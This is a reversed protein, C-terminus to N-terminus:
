QGELALGLWTVSEYRDELDLATAQEVIDSLGKSVLPNQARPSSKTLPKPDQGTLLFYMTAGLAYIDSQTETEQRFQEPPMYAHKGPCLDFSQRDSHSDTRNSAANIALSFDILKIDKVGDYIINDPTLDRHILAPTQNHLYGVVQCLQATIARVQREPLRGKERVLQRLSQGKVHELMLYVRRDEAFFDLLKVIHPHDLSGLLRAELEFDRASQILAGSTQCDSLIFEKLVFDHSEDHNKRALYATAQGGRGIIKIIEISGDRLFDGPQLDERKNRTGAAGITKETLLDFWIETYCSEKIVSSGILRQQAEASIIAQPVWKRLSYFLSTKEDSSLDSLNINIERGWGGSGVATSITVLQRSDVKHAVLDYILAFSNLGKQFAPPAGAFVVKPLPYFNVGTANGAKVSTVDAWAIQGTGSAPNNMTLVASLWGKAPCQKIRRQDLTLDYESSLFNLPFTFWARFFLMCLCGALSMLYIFVGGIKPGFQPNLAPHGLISDIQVCHYIGLTLAAPLGSAFVFICTLAFAPSYFFNTPGAAIANSKNQVLVLTAGSKCSIDVSKAPSLKQDIMHADDATDQFLNKGWHLAMWILALPLVLLFTSILFFPRTYDVAEEIQDLWGSLRMKTLTPEHVFTLETIRQLKEQLALPLKPYLGGGVSWFIVFLLWILATKGCLLFSVLLLAAFRHGKIEQLVGLRQLSAQEESWVRPMLKDLRGTCSYFLPKYLEQFLFVLGNKRASQTDTAPKPDIASQTDIAPEPAIAPQLDIVPETGTAALDSLDAALDSM